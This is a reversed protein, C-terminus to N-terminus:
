SQDVPILRLLLGPSEMAVYIYGNPSQKVARVRGYDELLREEGVYRGNEIEVRAVHRKALAGILLNNQWGPYRESTVLTMGCPAISPVWYHLPQEMGEKETINTIPTGDYNIGYTIVPWGYNRGQEIIHLEDGGQPGHEHAWLRGSEEDYIMGQVNRHGYTWIEPRANPTDVFPNDTPVSGDENLRLIKGHHNNLNQSNEKTGREGTSLFVHGNGDFAIRSGFHVSSSLFPQAVFLEELDILSNGQLRARILTTSGGGQGPKSYSIYIWGNQAYDPHLMIDLLGGQGQAYVSPVGQIRDETLSGEAIVRIDGARETVLIRNDPLFVMGWPNNLGSAVTDIGFRQKESEIVVGTYEETEDPEEEVVIDAPSERCAVFFWSLALLYISNRLSM